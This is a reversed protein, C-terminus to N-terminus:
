QNSQILPLLRGDFSISRNISCYLQKKTNRMSLLQFRVWGMVSRQLFISRTEESSSMWILPDKTYTPIIQIAYSSLVDHRHEMVKHHRRTPQEARWRHRHHNNHKISYQEQRNSWHLILIQHMSLSSTHSLNERLRVFLLVNAMLLIEQLWELHCGGNNWECCM